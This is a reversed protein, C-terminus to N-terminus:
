FWQRTYVPKVGAIMAYAMSQPVALVAVTFAATADFKLYEKKYTAITDIFPVYKRLLLM